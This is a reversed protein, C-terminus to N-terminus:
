AIMKLAADRLLIPLRRRDLSLDERLERLEDVMRTDQATLADEVMGAISAGQKPTVIAEPGHVDVTTVRGFDRFQGGPGTGLRYGPPSSAIRAVNVAAMATAIGVSVANLPFGPPAALAKQVASIGSIIAGALALAKFRVGFAALASATATLMEGTSGVTFIATDRTAARKAEEAREWAQRIEDATSTGSAVMDAWLERAKDATEQLAAQMRIGADAARQAITLNAGTAIGVMLGYKETIQAVRAAYM